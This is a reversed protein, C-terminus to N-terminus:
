PRSEGVELRPTLCVPEGGVRMTSQGAHRGRSETRPLLISPSDELRLAADLVQPLEQGGSAVYRGFYRGRAGGRIDYEPRMEELEPSM